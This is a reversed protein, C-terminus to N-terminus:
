LFNRTSNQRRGTAITGGHFSQRAAAGNTWRAEFIIVPPVFTSYVLAGPLKFEGNGTQEPTWTFPTEGLFTKPEAFKDNAGVGFFVRAGAPESTFDITRAGKRAPKAVPKPAPAPASAPQPANVPAPAPAACGALALCLLLLKKV